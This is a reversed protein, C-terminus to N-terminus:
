FILTNSTPKKSELSKLNIPKISVNSECIPLQGFTSCNKEKKTHGLSSGYSTSAKNSNDVNEKKSKVV